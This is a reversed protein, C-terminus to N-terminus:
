RTPIPVSPVHAQGNNGHVQGNVNNSQGNGADGSAHDNNEIALKAIDDDDEIAWQDGIQQAVIRRPNGAEAAVANMRQMPEEIAEHSLKFTSHHMPLLRRAGAHDAMAWAQEPTAHSAEWPNYAGIGLIALDVPGIGKFFEQYASDGGYLIRRGNAQLLYGNFGRYTDTFTRAGWHRVQQATVSLAGVAGTEGWALEITKAFKLDAVLDSTKSACIVTASRPLRDLSPRDLHDFHSHSLLILDIPPLQKISLAPAMLRAPGLTALCLGIGARRSFIPDTLVTMGGIRLLLTAHGIWIAALEHSQWNSLDPVRPAPPASGFRDLVRLRGKGRGLRGAIKLMTPSRKARDTITRWTALRMANQERM